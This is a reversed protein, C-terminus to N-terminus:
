WSSAARLLEGAEDAPAPLSFLYGQGYERGMELLRIRRSATEVGEAIVEKGMDHALADM